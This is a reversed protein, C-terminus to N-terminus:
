ESLSPRNKFSAYRTLQLFFSNEDLLNIKTLKHLTFIVNRCQNTYIVKFPWGQNNNFCHICLNFFRGVGLYALLSTSRLNYNSGTNRPLNDDFSTVHQHHYVRHVFAATRFYIRVKFPQVDLRSLAPSQAEVDLDKLKIKLLKYVCFNDLKEVQLLNARFYYISLSLPLLRFVPSHIDHPVTIQCKAGPLLDKQHQLTNRSSAEEFM